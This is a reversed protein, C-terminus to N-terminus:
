SLPANSVRLATKADIMILLLGTLVQAHLKVGWCPCCLLTLPLAFGTLSRTDAFPKLYKSLPINNIPPHNSADTM